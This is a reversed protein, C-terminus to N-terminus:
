HMGFMKGAQVYAAGPRGGSNMVATEGSFGYRTQRREAVPTRTVGPIAPEMFGYKRDREASPMAQSGVYPPLRPDMPTQQVQISRKALETKLMSVEQVLRQVDNADPNTGMSDGLVRYGMVTAAAPNVGSNMLRMLTDFAASTVVGKKIDEAAGTKGRLAYWVLFKPVNNAAWGKVKDVTTSTPTVPIAMVMNEVQRGVFGGALLGGTVAGGESIMAHVADGLPVKKLEEFDM